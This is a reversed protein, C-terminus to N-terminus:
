VEVASLYCHPAVEVNNGGVAGVWVELWTLAGGSNLLYAISEARASKSEALLEASTPGTAPASLDQVRSSIVKGDFATASLTVTLPAPIVATLILKVDGSKGGPQCALGLQFPGVPIVPHNPDGASPAESFYYKSAGPGAAGQPGQPGTPGTPGAVGTLGQAGPAGQPGRPGAPGRSPTKKKKKTKKGHQSSTTRAHKRVPKPASSLAPLLMGADAVAAGVLLALSAACTLVSWKLRSSM